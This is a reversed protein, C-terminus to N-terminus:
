PVAEGSPVVLHIQISQQAAALNNDGNILIGTQFQNGLDNLCTNSQLETTTTTTSTTTDTTTTTTTTSGTTSNDEGNSGGSNENSGGNNGSNSGGNGGSGNGTSGGSNGKGGNNGNGGKSPSGANSIKGDWHGSLFRGGQGQSFFQTSGGCTAGVKGNFVNLDLAKTDPNFAMSFYTGRVGCVVGGAEVEFSSKSSMLKRVQAFLKGIALKFLYNKTEPSPQTLSSITVRSNSDLDLSSGDPLSVSAKSDSGVQISDGPHVIHNLIAKRSNGKPTFVKVQGQVSSFTADKEVAGLVRSPSGYAPLLFLLILIGTKRM